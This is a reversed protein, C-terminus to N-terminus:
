NEKKNLNKALLDNMDVDKDPARNMASEHIRDLMTMEDNIVVNHKEEVKQEPEYKRVLGEGLEKGMFKTAVKLAEGYNEAVLSKVLTAVKSKDNGVFSEGKYAYQSAYTADPEANAMADVWEDDECTDNSSCEIYDIICNVASILFSRLQELDFETPYEPICVELDGTEDNYGGELTDSGYYPEPLYEQTPKVIEKDGRVVLKGDEVSITVGTGNIAQNALDVVAELTLPMGDNDELEEEKKFKSGTTKNIKDVYKDPDEVQTASGDDHVIYDKGDTGKISAMASKGDSYVAEAKVPDFEVSVNYSANYGNSIPTMRVSTIAQSSEKIKDMLATITGPGGTVAGTFAFHGSKFQDIHFAEGINKNFTAQIGASLDGWFKTKANETFIM